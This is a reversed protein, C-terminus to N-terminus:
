CVHERLSCRRAAGRRVCTPTSMSRCCNCLATPSARTCPRRCLCCYSQAASCGLSRRRQPRRVKYTAVTAFVNANAPDCENWAVCYIPKQHEEQKGHLQPTLPPLLRRVPCYRVCSAVGNALRVQITEVHVFDGDSPVAVPCALQEEVVQKRSPPM